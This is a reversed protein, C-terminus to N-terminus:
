AQLATLLQHYIFIITFIDEFINFFYSCLMKILALAEKTIKLVDDSYVLYLSAVFQSDISLCINTYCCNFDYSDIRLCMILNPDVVALRVLVLEQRTTQAHGPAPAPLGALLGLGTLCTRRTRFIGVSARMRTLRAHQGPFTAM